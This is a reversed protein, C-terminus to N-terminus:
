LAAITATLATAAARDGLTKFDNGFGELRKLARERQAPTLLKELAIFFDIRREQAEAAVREYEASRGREWELLWHHLRPQFEQRQTRLKLLESFEMQRRLRDQYRLHEFLPIAEILQEIQQEQARSLNGTWDSIQGLTRKLRARKRREVSSELEHEEIFRHNDKAWQKQLAPLQEANLTALLEAADNIGRDVISRYHNKMGGILWLIDERSVGDRARPVAGQIFRAYEPLQERRHWALLRELRQHFDRKQASEFDFYRDARWGLLLDAQNYSLQLTSCGALLLAAFLWCCRGYRAFRAM